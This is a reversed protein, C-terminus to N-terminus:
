VCIWCVLNPVLKFLFGFRFFSFSFLPNKKLFSIDRGRLVMAQGAPGLLLFFINYILHLQFAWRFTPFVPQSFAGQSALRTRSLFRSLGYYRGGPTLFLRLTDNEKLTMHQALKVKALHHFCLTDTNSQFFDVGSTFHFVLIILLLLETPTFCPSSTPLRLETAALETTLWM